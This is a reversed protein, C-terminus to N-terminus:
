REPDSNICASTSARLFWNDLAGVPTENSQSLYWIWATRFYVRWSLPLDQWRKGPTTVSLGIHTHLCDYIQVLCFYYFRGMKQRTERLLLQIWIVFSNVKLVTKHNCIGMLWTWIAAYPGTALCHSHMCRGNRHLPETFVNGNSPLLYKMICCNSLLPFPSGNIHAAGLYLSLIWQSNLQNRCPLRQLRYRIAHLQLFEVTLIQQWSVAPSSV